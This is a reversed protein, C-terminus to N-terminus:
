VPLGHATRRCVYLDLNIPLPPDLASAGHMNLTSSTPNTLNVGYFILNRQPPHPTPMRPSPLSSLREIVHVRTDLSM